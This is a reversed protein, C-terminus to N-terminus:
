VARGTWAMFKATPSADEGIRQEPAFMGPRRVLQEPAHKKFAEIWNLTRTDIELPEGLGEAVLGARIDWAHVLTVFTPLAFRDSLEDRSQAIERIGMALSRWADPGADDAIDLMGLMRGPDEGSLLPLTLERHVHIVHRIVQGISWDECASRLTLHQEARDVEASFYDFSTLLRATQVLGIRGHAGRQIGQVYACQRM